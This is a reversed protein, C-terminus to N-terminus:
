VKLELYSASVKASIAVDSVEYRMGVTWKDPTAGGNAASSTTTPILTGVTVGFSRRVTEEPALCWAGRRVGGM